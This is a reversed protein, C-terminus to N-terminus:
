PLPEPRENVQEFMWLIVGEPDEYAPTWSNHGVGELESYKPDGGAARLADIMKRSRAVPVVPDADGHFAWLPVDVLKEAQVAQGGGCIPVVAAFARPYHSALGWTGFGGMSLGTLYIRREDVPESDLVQRAAALAAQLQDALPPLTGDSAEGGLFQKTDIWWKGSRCQPAVLFCPYKARREEGSMLEPLYALQKRNDDGREGAGHLSIVLPYKVGPEIAAPKLLRFRFVEDTYEGGTYKVECEEFRAVAEESPEVGIAWVTLGLALYHM